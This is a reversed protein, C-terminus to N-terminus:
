VHSSFDFLLNSPTLDTSNHGFSLHCLFFQLGLMLLHFLSPFICSTDFLFFIFNQVSVLTSRPTVPSIIIKFFCRPKVPSIPRLSDM